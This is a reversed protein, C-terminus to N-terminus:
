HSVIGEWGLCRSSVCPGKTSSSSSGEGWMHGCCTVLGEGLRGKGSGWRHAGKEWLM